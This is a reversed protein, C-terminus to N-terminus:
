FIVEAPWWKIYTPLSMQLPFSDIKTFIGRPRIWSARGEFEKIELHTYSFFFDLFVTSIRHFIVFLASIDVIKDLKKNLQVASFNWYIQRRISFRSFFYRIWFESTNNCDWLIYVPADLCVCLCIFIRQHNISKEIKAHLVNIKTYEIKTYICWKLRKSTRMCLWTNTIANWVSCIVQLVWM